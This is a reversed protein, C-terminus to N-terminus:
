GARVAFALYALVEAFTAVLLWLAFTGLFLGSLYIAGRIPGGFTVVWTRAEMSAAEAVNRAEAGIAKVTEVAEDSVTSSIDWAVRIASFWTAYSLLPLGPLSALWYSSGAARPCASGVM